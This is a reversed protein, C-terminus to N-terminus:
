HRDNSHANFDDNNERAHDMAKSLDELETLASLKVVKRLKYGKNIIAPKQTALSDARQGYFSVTAHKKNM